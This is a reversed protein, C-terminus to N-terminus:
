IIWDVFQMSQGFELLHCDTRGRLSDDFFVMFLDEAQGRGVVSHDSKMNNWFIIVGFVVCLM